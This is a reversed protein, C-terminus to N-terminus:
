QQDAERESDRATLHRYLLPLVDGPAFAILAPRTGAIAAPIVPPHVSIGAEDDACILNWM